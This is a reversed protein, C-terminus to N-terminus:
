FKVKEVRFVKFVRVFTVSNMLYMSVCDSSYRLLLMIRVIPPSKM